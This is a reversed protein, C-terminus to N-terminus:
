TRGARHAIMTAALTEIIHPIENIGVVIAQPYGTTEQEITCWDDNDLHHIQITRNIRTTTM